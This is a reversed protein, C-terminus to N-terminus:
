DEDELGEVMKLVGVVVAMMQPPLNERIDTDLTQALRDLDNEIPKKADRLLSKAVPENLNQIDKIM